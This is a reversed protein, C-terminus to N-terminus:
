FLYAPTYASSLLSEFCMFSFDVSSFTFLLSLSCFLLLYESYTYKKFPGTGLSHLSSKCSLLLIIWHFYACSVQVSVKYFLTHIALLYIFVHEVYNTMLFICMLGYLLIVICGRSYSLNLVLLVFHYFPHPVILIKMYQQNPHLIMCDSQFVSQFNGKFIFEGVSDGPM